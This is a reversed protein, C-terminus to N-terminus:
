PRPSSGGGKIRSSQEAYVCSFEIKGAEKTASHVAAKLEVSVASGDWDRKENLRTRLRACASEAIGLPLQDSVRIMEKATGTPSPWFQKDVEWAISFFPLWSTGIKVAYLVARM